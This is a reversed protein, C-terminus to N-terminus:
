AGPCWRTVLVGHFKHFFACCLVSVPCVDICKRNFFVYYYRNNPNTATMFEVFSLVTRVLRSILGTRGEFQTWFSFWKVDVFRAWGNGDFPQDFETCFLPIYIVVYCSNLHFLFFCYIM